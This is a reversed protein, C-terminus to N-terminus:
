AKNGDYTLGKKKLLGKMFVIEDFTFAKKAFLAYLALAAALALIKNYGALLYIVAFASLGGAVPLLAGRALPKLDVISAMFYLYIVLYLVNSAFFAVSAGYAGNFKTLPYYMAGSLVLLILNLIFISRQKHLIILLPEFVYIMFNFNVGVIMIRLLLACNTYKAGFFLSVLEDAFAFGFLSLPITAILTLRCATTIMYDIKEKQYTVATLAALVPYLAVSFSIPFVNLRNVIRAPAQFLGIDYDTTFEKLFFVGLYAYVQIIIQNVALFGCEKIFYVMRTFNLKVVPRVGLRFIIVVSICIGILNSLMFAMFTASFGMDFYVVAVIFVVSMTSIIFSVLTEYRVKEFAIFVSTCVSNLAAFTIAFVNILLATFYISDVRFVLLLLMTFALIPPALLGILTLGTGVIESVQGKDVAIDRVLIRQLVLFLPLVTWCAAMLFSYVGFEGVGLYRAVLAILLLSNIVEAM